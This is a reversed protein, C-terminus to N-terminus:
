TIVIIKIHAQKAAEIAAPVTQRPPDIMSVMGLFTLGSEAEEMTYTSERNTIDKYAYALNRM